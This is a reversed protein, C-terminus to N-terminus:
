ESLIANESKAPCFTAVHFTQLQRTAALRHVGDIIQRRLHEAPGSRNVLMNQYTKYSFFWINIKITKLTKM